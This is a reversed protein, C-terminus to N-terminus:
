RSGFGTIITNLTKAAIVADLQLSFHKIYLFDYELESLTSRQFM